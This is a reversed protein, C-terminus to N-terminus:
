TTHELLWDRLAAFFEDRVYKEAWPRHGCREWERYELQPIYPQLSARIMQGPHPDYTGHLMLVPSTIASFAGPYAGEEQLRVMDNWTEAHARADFPEAVDDDCGDEPITSYDYLPSLLDHRRKLREDPDLIEAALAELRERLDRDTREELTEMIRARSAKDFTGCAVLALPGAADPHAAAYALTLMAGWSEGVLAPKVIDGQTRILDHLDAVHRAVTLPEGGSGRQWPEIVRFSDALGRAIPAAEGAAAPGGHLVIVLPGSGGYRRVRLGGLTDLVAGFVAGSDEVVRRSREPCASMVSVVSSSMEQTGREVVAVARCHDVFPV